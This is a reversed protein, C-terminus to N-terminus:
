FCIQAWHQPKNFESNQPTGQINEIGAGLINSDVAAVFTFDSRLHKEPLKFYFELSEPTYVFFIEKTRDEM